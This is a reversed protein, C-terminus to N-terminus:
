WGPVTARTLYDSMTLLLLHGVWLVGAGVLVWTLRSSYRGHMFFLVVLLAKGLAITLAVIGGLPSSLHLRSVGWTLATCALLTAFVRYYIRPSVVDAM